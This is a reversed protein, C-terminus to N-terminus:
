HDTLRWRQPACAWVGFARLQRATALVARDRSVLWRVRRSVALDIFKQDDPDTCRPTRIPDASVNPVVETCWRDWAQWITAPQPSWADLHGREIVHALEDRMAATGLWRVRGCEVDAALTACTADRFVLWDLVVNTDLVVLEPEFPPPNLTDTAPTPSRAASAPLPKKCHRPCRLVISPKEASM